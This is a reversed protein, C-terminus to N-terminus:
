RSKRMRHIPAQVDLMPVQICCSACAQSTKSMDLDANM